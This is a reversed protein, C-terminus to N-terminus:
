VKPTFTVTILSNQIIKSPIEKLEGRIKEFFIMGLYYSESKEPKPVKWTLPEYTLREIKGKTLTLDATKRMIVNKTKKEFIAFVARIPLSYDAFSQVSPFLKIEIEKEIQIYESLPPTSIYAVRIAPRVAEVKIRKENVWVEGEQNKIEFRLKCEKDTAFLPVKVPIKVLVKDKADIKVPVNEQLIVTDDVYEIYNLSFSIPSSINNELQVIVDYLSGPTMIGPIQHIFVGIADMLSVVNVQLNDEALKQGNKSLIAKITVKEADSPMTLPPIEIISDIIPENLTITVAKEEGGLFAKEIILNCPVLASSLGRIAVKGEITSGAVTVDPMSVIKVSIEPGRIVKFKTSTEVLNILEGEHFVEVTLYFFEEDKGRRLVDIPITWKVPITTSIGPKVSADLIRKEIENTASKAKLTISIPMPSLLESADVTISTELTEGVSYTQKPIRGINVSVMAGQFFVRFDRSWRESIVRGTPDILQAKITCRPSIWSSYLWPKLILPEIEIWSGETQGELVAKAWDLKATEESMAVFLVQDRARIPKLYVGWPKVESTVYDLERGHDRDVVSVRLTLYMDQPTTNEVAVIFPIETEGTVIVGDVQAILDVKCNVRYVPIALKDIAVLESSVVLEASLTYQAAGIEAEFHVEGFRKEGPKLVDLAFEEELVEEGNQDVVICRLTIDRIEEDGKNEVFVKCTVPQGEFVVPNELAVELAVPIMVLEQLNPTGSLPDSWLNNCTQDAIIQLERSLSEIDEGLEFFKELQYDATTMPAVVKGAADGYVSVLLPSLYESKLVGLEELEERLFIFMNKVADVLRKLLEKGGSKYDYFYIRAFDPYKKTFEELNKPKFFPGTLGWRIAARRNKILTESDIEPIKEGVEYLKKAKLAIAQLLIALAVKRIVSVQCDFFRVEVTGYKTFPYMDCMRAPTRGITREFFDEDLSKLYPIYHQPDDPGLQRVNLQLRISRVCGPAQLRGDKLMVADTPRGNVFPSNVSIAVLHPIFARILNYIALRLNPDPVGIHHHDGFSLGQQYEMLPNLGTMILKVGAPLSDHSLKLITHLWWALELSRM